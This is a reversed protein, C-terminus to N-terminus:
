SPRSSRIPASGREALTERLLSPRDSFIGTVGLEALRRMRAADNVTYVLTALGLERARALARPVAISKSFSAGWFPKAATVPKNGLNLATRVEPLRGRATELIRPHFSLLILEPPEVDHEQLVDLTRGAADEDKIEVALGVRGHLAGLTEVFTPVEPPCPHPPRDHCVVLRGDRALRVDFEVYDAGQEVALEFARLTNEPADWSAGRHALVLPTEAKV